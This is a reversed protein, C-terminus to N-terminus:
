QARRMLRDCVGGLLFGVAFGVLMVALPNGSLWQSALYGLSWMYVAWAAGAVASLRVYRGLPYRAAGAALNVVTRGAPVFRSAVTFFGGRSEFARHAWDLAARGRVFGVRDLPVARGLAYTCADGAAFAVACVVLVAWPAPTGSARFSSACALVMLETPIPVVLADLFAALALAALGWGSGAAALLWQNIADM